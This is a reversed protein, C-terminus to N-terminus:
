FQLFINFIQKGVQELLFLDVRQAVGRSWAGPLDPYPVGEEMFQVDNHEVPTLETADKQGEEIFLQGPREYMLQMTSAFTRKLERERAGRVHLNDIAEKLVQTDTIRWWGYRKDLPVSKRECAKPLGHKKIYELQESEEATMQLPAPSDCTNPHYTINSNPPPFVPIKLETLNDRICVGVGNDWKNGATLNVGECSEKNLISFWKVDSAESKEDDIEMKIETKIETKLENLIENKLEEKIEAKVDLKLEEETKNEREMCEGLKEFLNFKKNSISEVTEIKIKSDEDIHNVNPEQIIIIEKSQDEQKSQQELNQVMQDVSKRLENLSRERKDLVDGNEIRESNLTRNPTKRHENANDDTENKEDIKCSGEECKNKDEGVIISVEKDALENDEHHIIKQIEEVTLEPQRNLCLREEELLQHPDASEMSEVFIGGAKPLSWYRRWYRDQGFCTARLQHCSANLQQLQVESAKLLKELKKGLEEGTLKNDEEEEPQTGLSENESMENEEDDLLDDKHLAPSDVNETESGDIKAQAKEVAEVRVKRNHLMRLKRIKADLLWKEKRCQQVTELSGEIQRIVAKNQLLENCIFALIAAKDTPALALFPKDKLMDSMKWTPNEHLLEYYTSNKGAQTQQMECDNQHHDAVRKERDREFHVGTLAKVEGTANAYLYIRLIESLNAHTIDAQRLSQGLITTHRAPNPIGPDEIACVLLHTMVSLLEEEAESSNTDNYLLAQQLNELTPLSEMDFGLTEGFNHLFEFVMLIDAFAKGALKLGTIRKYEPLPKQNLELDECPKRLETLIEMEMKRQEMKKEKNAQKEALLQQKKREREELKRRNELAKVLTMHQRRREREQPSFNEFSIKTIM